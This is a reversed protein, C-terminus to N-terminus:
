REPVYEGPDEDMARFMPFMGHDAFDKASNVLLSVSEM